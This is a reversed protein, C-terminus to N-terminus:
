IFDILYCSKRYREQLTVLYLNAYGCPLLEWIARFSLDPLGLNSLGFAVAQTLGLGCVHFSRLPEDRLCLAAYGGAM